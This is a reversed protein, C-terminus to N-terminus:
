IKKVPVPVNSDTTTGDGLQGASNKGWAWATGNSAVALSFDFGAAVGTFTVGTPAQVTVPLTSNTNAGDGLEGNGNYGWAMVGGTSSVALTHHAGAAVATFTVGAPTSPNISTARNHITGDGLQGQANYGWALVQGSPTSAHASQPISLLGAALGMAAM